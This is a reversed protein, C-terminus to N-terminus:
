NKYGMLLKSGVILTTPDGKKSFCKPNNDIVWQVSKGLSKYNNNVLGWVTNGKKVTHYVAKNDGSTVQKTSKASEALLENEQRMSELLENDKRAQWQKLAESM